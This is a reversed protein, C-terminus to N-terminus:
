AASGGWGSGLPAQDGWIRGLPSRASAAQQQDTSRGRSPSCWMSETREPWATSDPRGLGARSSPHCPRRTVPLGLRRCHMEPLTRRPHPLRVDTRHRCGHLCKTSSPNLGSQGTHVRRTARLPRCTRSNEPRAPSKSPVAAATSSTGRQARAGRDGDVDRRGRHAGDRPRHARDGPRRRRGTERDRRPRRDLRRVGQPVRGPGSPGARAGGDRLRDACATSPSPPTCVGHGSASAVTVPPLRGAERRAASMGSAPAQADELLLNRDGLLGRGSPIRPEPKGHGPM